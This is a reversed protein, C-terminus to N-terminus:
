ARGEAKAIAKEALGMADVGANHAVGLLDGEARDFAITLAKLLGQCAELLEPAAAARRADALYIFYGIEHATNGMVHYHGAGFPVQYEEV